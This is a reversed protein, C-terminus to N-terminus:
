RGEDLDLGTQSRLWYPMWIKIVFRSGGDHDQLLLMMVKYFVVLKM